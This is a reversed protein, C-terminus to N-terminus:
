SNSLGDVVSICSLVKNPSDYSDGIREFGERLSNEPGAGLPGSKPTSCFDSVVRSMGRDCCGVCDDVLFCVLSVVADVVSGGLGVDDDVLGLFAAFRVADAGSAALFCAEVVPFGAEFDVPAFMPASDTDLIAGSRGGLEARVDRTSCGGTCGLGMVIADM